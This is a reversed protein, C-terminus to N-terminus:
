LSKQNPCHMESIPVHICIMPCDHSTSCSVSEAKLNPITLATCNKGIISKASKAPVSTSLNGLRVTSIIVCALRATRETINAVSVYKLMTSYQCTSTSAASSPMTFVSSMGVLCDNKMSSTPLSSRIFAM